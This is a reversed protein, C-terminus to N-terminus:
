SVKLLTHTDEKSCHGDVRTVRYELWQQVIAKEEPTSGLLHEKNALKVLHTAITALGM